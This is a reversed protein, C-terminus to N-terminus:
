KSFAKAKLEDVNSGVLWRNLWKINQSTKIYSLHWYDFTDNALQALLQFLNAWANTARPALRKVIQM